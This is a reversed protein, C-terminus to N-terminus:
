RHAGALVPPRRTNMVAESKSEAIQQLWAGVIHTAGRNTRDGVHATATAPFQGMFNEKREAIARARFRALAEIEEAGFYHRPLEPYTETTGLLFRRVDRRYERGLTQADYEPHGQFFLWNDRQRKVFLDAGAEPSYSLVQYSGTQLADRTVENWRSHAVRLPTVLGATLPHRTAIAHDFLGFRKAPMPQREIGDFHLVAAHAALCSFLTPLNERAIWDFLATLEPWYKEQRLNQFVPETGTIILGDLPQNFLAFLDRYGHADLHSLGAESRAISSMSYLRFDVPLDGAARHLLNSFQRETNELAADPMNNVLGFRLVSNRRTGIREYHPHKMIRQTQFIM